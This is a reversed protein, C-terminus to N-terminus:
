VWEWGKLLLDFGTTEPYIIVNILIIDIYGGYEM